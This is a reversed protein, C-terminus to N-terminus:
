VIGDNTDYKYAGALQEKNGMLKHYCIRTLKAMAPKDKFNDITEWIAKILSDPVPIWIKLEIGDIPNKGSVYAAVRDFRPDVNEERRFAAKRVIEAPASNFAPVTAHLLRAAFPHRTYSGDPSPPSISILIKVIGRGMKVGRFETDDKRDLIELSIPDPCKGLLRVFTRTNLITLRYRPKDPFDHNIWQELM